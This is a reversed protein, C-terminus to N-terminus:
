GLLIPLYRLTPDQVVRAVQLAQETLARRYTIREGTPEHTFLTLMRLEYERLFVGRPDDRLLVGGTTADGVFDAPGVLGKNVLALCLADVIVPRLEEILDLALSPRGPRVHHLFGCHPDLGVGSLATVAESTLLTYGFSLLSNFPDRPPRRNRGAFAFEQPVIAGLGQFFGRSAAGEAGRLADGSGAQAVAVPAQALVEMAARLDPRERRASHRQLLRRQNRVKGTVFTRALELSAEADIAQLLQAQRLAPNPSSWGELRGWWRGNQGVFSFDVGATLCASIAPSTMEASGIIVVSRLRRLPVSVLEAGDREVTLREGRRALRAGHDSIYLTRKSPHAQEPGEPAAVARVLRGLFVLSEGRADVVRTKGPHLELGLAELCQRAVALSRLAEGEEACCAVFDDAYRIYTTQPTQLACDLPHLVINALLPCIPAGLPLGAERPVIRGGRLAPAGIWQEVLQVALPDAVWTPLADLVRRFGVSGFFDRIDADLVWPRREVISQLAGVASHISRGARYGHSTPLFRLECSPGVVEIFARQLIRDRLAPVLLERGRPDAHKPITVARLPLARYAGSRLEQALDSLREEAHEAFTAHDEDDIGPAGGRAHVTRWALALLGPDCLRELLPESFAARSGDSGEQAETAVGAM